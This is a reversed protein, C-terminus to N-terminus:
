AVMSSLDTGFKLRDSNIGTEVLKDLDPEFFPIKDQKLAAIKDADNDICTVDHGFDALCAGSVLGVNGVGIM